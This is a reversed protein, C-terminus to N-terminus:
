AEAILRTAEEEGVCVVLTNRLSKYAKNGAAIEEPTLEMNCEGVLIAGCIGALTKYDATKAILSILNEMKREKATYRAQTISDRYSYFLRPYRLL